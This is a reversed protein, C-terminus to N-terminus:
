KKIGILAFFLSIYKKLCFPYKKISHILLPIAKSNLGKIQYERAEYYDIRALHQVLLKEINYNTQDLKMIHDKIVNKLNKYLKSVNASINDSQGLCYNGCIDSISCIRGEKSVRLWLEYDEVIYYKESVNFGNIKELIDKRVTMASTSFCNGEFLLREYVNSVNTGHILQKKFEGNVILNESHSVAVVDENIEIVNKVKELKNHEWFDDSDLFCIWEYDSIKIGNNRAVSPLGSNEQWIYKIKPHNLDLIYEKTGDKSGDDIIVVQFEQYTQNLISNLAKKLNSLRNYTPIVISFKIM